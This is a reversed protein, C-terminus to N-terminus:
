VFQIKRGVRVTLSHRRVSPFHFTSLHAAAATFVKKKKMEKGDMNYYSTHVFTEDDKIFFFQARLTQEFLILNELKEKARGGSHWARADVVRRCFGGGFTNPLDLRRGM